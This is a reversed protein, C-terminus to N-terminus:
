GAVVRLEPRPRELPQDLTLDTIAERDRQELALHRLTRRDGDVHLAVLERDDSPPTEVLRLPAPTRTVTARAGAFAAFRDHLHGITAPHGGIVLRVDLPTTPRMAPHLWPADVEGGVRAIERVLLDLLTADGSYTVDVQQWRKVM